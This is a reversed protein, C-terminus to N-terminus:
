QEHNGAAHIGWKWNRVMGGNQKTCFYRLRPDSLYESVVAETEDMSSDDCVLIEIQVAYQIVTSAIRKVDLSSQQTAAACRSDLHM